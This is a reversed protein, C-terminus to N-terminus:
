LAGNIQIFIKKPAIPLQVILPCFKVTANRGLSTHRFLLHEEEFFLSFRGTDNMFAARVLYAKAGKQPRYSHGAYYVALEDTLEIFEQDKLRDLATGLKTIQCEYYRDEAIQHDVQALGPPIKSSPTVWDKAQPPAASAFVAILCFCAVLIPSKM